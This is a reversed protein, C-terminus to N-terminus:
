HRIKKALSIKNAVHKGFAIMPREVTYEMCAAGLMSAVLVVITKMWGNIVHLGVYYLIIYHILYVSYSIKGIWSLLKNKELFCRVYKSRATSLLLVSWIISIYLYKNQLYGDSPIGWVYERVGPILLILILVCLFVIGDFCASHQKGEVRSYCFAACMGMLFVPIYWFLYISNGIYATYPFIVAAAVAASM